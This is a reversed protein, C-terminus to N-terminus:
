TCFQLLELADDISNSCDQELVELYETIIYRATIYFTVMQGHIPIGM